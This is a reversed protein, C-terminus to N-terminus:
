CKTQSLFVSALFIFCIFALIIATAQQHRHFRVADAESHAKAADRAARSIHEPIPIYDPTSMVPVLVPRMPRLAFAHPSRPNQLNHLRGVSESPPVTPDTHMSILANDSVRANNFTIKPGTRHPGHTFTMPVPVHTAAM